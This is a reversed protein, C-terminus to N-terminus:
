GETILDCIVGFVCALFVRVLKMLPRGNGLTSYTPEVMACLADWPVGQDVETLFTGRKTVKSHRAIGATAVVLIQKTM